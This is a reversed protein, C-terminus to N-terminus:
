MCIVPMAVALAFWWWSASPADEEECWWASCFAADGADSMSLLSPGAQLTQALQQMPAATRDWGVRMAATGDAVVNM